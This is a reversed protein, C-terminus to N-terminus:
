GSPAVAVNDILRTRGLWVAALVRAPGAVLEMPELTEADTVELYDVSAFGAALLADRGRRAEERPLAEGRALRGAIGLLIRPLAPAIRREEPTLYANRSSLAVGDADRVTPVGMIEVPLDLDRAMRKIVQLQQYDKEGFLAIDAMSQSLLKAVVTAVGDFHGPRHPGCLGKTVGEVHVTTAFGAPYMEAVGPAFLLDTGVQRLKEADAGEGRPYAAFDEAPSFQTPNVFITAIVREARAQGARILSLHGKHLAGMTPVLAVRQGAKRWAAVHSRLDTVTRAVRLSSEPKPSSKAADAM